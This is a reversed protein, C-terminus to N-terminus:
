FFESAIVGAGLAVLWWPTWTVPTEETEATLAAFSKPGYEDFAFRPEIVLLAAGVVCATTIFRSSRTYLGARLFLNQGMSLVPQVGPVAASAPLGYDSANVEPLDINDM